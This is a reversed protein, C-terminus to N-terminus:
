LTDRKEGGRKRKLYVSQPHGGRGRRRKGKGWNGKEKLSGSKEDSSQHDNGGGEGGQTKKWSNSFGGEERRKKEGPQCSPFRRKKEEKREEGAKSQDEQSFIPDVGKKEKGCCL